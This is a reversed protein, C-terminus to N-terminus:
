ENTLGCPETKLHLTGLVVQLIEKQSDTQIEWGPPFEGTSANGWKKLDLVAKIIGQYSAEYNRRLEGNQVRILNFADIIGQYGSATQNSSSSTVTM